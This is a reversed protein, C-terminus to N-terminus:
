PGLPRGLDVVVAVRAVQGRQRVLRHRGHQRDVLLPDLLVDVPVPSAPTPTPPTPKVAPAARTRREPVFLSAAAISSFSRAPPVGIARSASSGAVSVAAPNAPAATSTSADSSSAALTSMASVVRRSGSRGSTM